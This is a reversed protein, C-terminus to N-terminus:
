ASLICNNCSNATCCIVVSLLKSNFLKGSIGFFYTTRRFPAVKQLNRKHTCFNFSLCERARINICLLTETWTSVTTRRDLFAWYILFNQCFNKNYWEHYLSLLIDTYFGRTLYFQRIAYYFVGIKCIIIKM